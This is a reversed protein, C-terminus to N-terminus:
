SRRAGTRNSFILGVVAGVLLTPLLMGRRFGQMLRQYYAGYHALAVLLALKALDSPQFQFGGFRFWRRARQSQGRRGAGPGPAVGGATSFGRWRDCGGIGVAVVLLAGTVGIGAAILQRSLYRTSDHAPSVSYLSVMGVSMLAMVCFVPLSSAWKM